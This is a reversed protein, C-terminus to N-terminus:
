WIYYSSATNRGVIWNDKTQPAFLGIYGRCGTDRYLAIAWYRSRNAVSEVNDTWHVNLNHCGEWARSPTINLPTGGFDTDYYICIKHDLCRPASLAAQAPVVGVVLALITAFASALALRITRIM